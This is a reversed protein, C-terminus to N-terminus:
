NRIITEGYFAGPSPVNVVQGSIAGFTGPSKRNVNLGGRIDYSTNRKLEPNQLWFGRFLEKKNQKQGTVLLVAVILVLIIIYKNKLM